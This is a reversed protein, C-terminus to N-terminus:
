TDTPMASTSSTPVSLRTIITSSCTGAARTATISASGSSYAGNRASTPKRESLWREASPQRRTGKM